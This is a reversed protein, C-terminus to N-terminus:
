PKWGKTLEPYNRMFEARNARASQRKWHEELQTWAIVLVAIILWGFPSTLTFRVLWFWAILVDAPSMM